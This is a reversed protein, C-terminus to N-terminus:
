TADQVTYKCQIWQHWGISERSNSLWVFCLEMWSNMEGISHWLGQSERLIPYFPLERGEPQLSGGAVPLTKALFFIRSFWSFQDNEKTKGLWIAWFTHFDNFFFMLSILMKIVYPLFTGWMQCCLTSLYRTTLQCGCCLTSLYRMM